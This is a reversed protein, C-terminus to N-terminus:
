IRKKLLDWGQKIIRVNNNTICDTNILLTGATGRLRRCRYRFIHKLRDILKPSGSPIELSGFRSLDPIPPHRMRPHPSRPKTLRIAANKM